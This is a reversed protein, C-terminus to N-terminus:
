RPENRKVWEDVVQNHTVVEAVTASEIPVTQMESHLEVFEKATLTRVTKFGSYKKREDATMIRADNVAVYVGEEGVFSFTDYKKIRAVGCVTDIHRSYLTFGNGDISESCGGCLPSDNYIVAIKLNLQLSVSSIM